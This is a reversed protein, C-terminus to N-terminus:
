IVEEGLDKWSPNLTKILEQKRKRLWGKIQKERQIAQNVDHYEECHILKKCAYKKSFGEILGHKHEYYRRAINNTIGVYLTGSLSAMIYVFYKYQKM